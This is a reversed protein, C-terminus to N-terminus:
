NSSRMRNRNKKRMARTQFKEREYFATNFMMRRINNIFGRTPKIGYNIAQQKIYLSQEDRTARLVAHYAVLATDYLDQYLRREPSM